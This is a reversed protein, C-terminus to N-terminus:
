SSSSEYYKKFVTANLGADLLVPHGEKVGWSSIRALDGGMLQFKQGVRKMEQYIDTKEVKDFNPPKEKGTDGSVSKLGYRIAEGFDDFKIGTMKEFDKTTIKDLYHTEIWAYNNAHGLIPNLYKSKMKPNAEAKNQAEGKENKAVKVITKKPTLYVIRSSGSSLHKLNKEAYEKRAAYTDCQELNELITSLDKSNAPSEEEKALAYYLTALRLLKDTRM